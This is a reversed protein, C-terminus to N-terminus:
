MATHGDDGDKEMFIKMKSFLFESPIFEWSEIGEVRSFVMRSERKM